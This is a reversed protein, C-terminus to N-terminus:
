IEARRARKAARQAKLRAFDSEVPTDNSNNISNNTVPPTVGFIESYLNMFSSDNRLM